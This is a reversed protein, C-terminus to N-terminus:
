QLRSNSHPLHYITTTRKNCAIKEKPISLDMDFHESRNIENLFNEWCETRINTINQVKGLVNYNCFNRETYLVSDPYRRIANLFQFIQHNLLEPHLSSCMKSFPIHDNPAIITITNYGCHTFVQYRTYFSNKMGYCKKYISSQVSDMHFVYVFDTLQNIKVWLNDLKDACSRM